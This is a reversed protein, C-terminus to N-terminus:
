RGHIEVKLPVALTAPPLCARDNCAQYELTLPITLAGPKADAPVSLTVRIAAKGEYIMAQAPPEGAKGKIQADAADLNAAPLPLPSGKPYSVKAVKVPSDKDIDVSTAQFSEMGSPNAYVHYGPAMTITVTAEFSEGPHIPGATAPSAEAQVIKSAAKPRDANARGFGALPSTMAPAAPKAPERADLFEELGVLMNPAAAPSAALTASFADLAKGAHDLYAKEGTARSLSVLVRIAVGNAGPIANDYADKPRALLSEHDNATAFFGGSEKDLFDAIMRDVLAKAQDLRAKDGTAAHLRLLGDALFAYDELYAPLKAQGARFTRLLRGDPTRLTKWLFDAAKEAKTRYAPTKLVRYGDAYAGIMLGNWATLVKDDLLPGPRADRVALLKARMPKLKAELDEPSVTLARAAEARPGTELLVHRDKEFNAPNNLGYVAAFIKFSEPGLIKAVEDKSWVYYKGEEGETEADIASYFAGEPSTLTNGVFTFIDDAEVRWRPDNTQRFADLFVSALQANDYLMKEFHPVSWDRKVSYRHYGGALHDRIGGRALGDLTKVVSPLPAPDPQSVKGAVDRSHQDLLYVLNVPEPFKPRRPQAANFGFGGFQPDFQSALAARGSSALARTLAVRAKGSKGATSKRVIETLQDADKELAPRQDRWADNILKVLSLFGTQGERDRPPIYTAAFFPRGDPFMFITMPWGGSGNFAQLATMYIADVDPREERDVKICVFKENLAKAIEADMFCEREMVHCWYCSSYGVSLFIPKNEAKAKAFAEPGWPFWDVPNHAHLLLYPSTEKALRNAKPIPKTGASKKPPDQGSSGPLGACLIMLGTALATRFTRTRDTM